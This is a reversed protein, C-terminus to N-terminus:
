QFREQRFHNLALITLPTLASIIGLDFKKQLQVCRPSLSKGQTNQPVIQIDLSSPNLMAKIPNSTYQMLLEFFASFAKNVAEPISQDFLNCPPVLNQASSYSSSTLATGMVVFSASCINAPTMNVM